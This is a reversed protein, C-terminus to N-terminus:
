TRQQEQNASSAKDAQPDSEPLIETGRTEPLLLIFAAGAIYLVSTCALATGLGHEDALSGIIWPALASVARGLNYCLGQAVGRIRSPFLEALMAGFVSFYGHGFFGVLPGLIMLLSPYRNSMGFIPVFIAAGIVFAVFVPKRGFRDALFGFTTYGAFAGLQMPIIWTTSKVIGLGAGGRDAPVALYTPLWTFFGWYAFLLCTATLTAAIARRLNTRELLVRLSSGEREVRRTAKWAEPEPINRRICAVLIAPLIGVVFLPRWGWTPIIASALVAALIYGIAWGSQMFGIAKARHKAPWTEAVLVSGASWEGGMGLGVLIRWVVLQWVTQSTATLATFSSYLLISLMLMRVRGFRDSLAGFAIGGIASAVLTASALAGSGGPTLGFERKISELAFAYLMVDMADLMWGAAAAILARWAHPTPRSADAQPSETNM